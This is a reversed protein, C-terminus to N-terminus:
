TWELAITKYDRKSSDRERPFSTAPKATTGSQGNTLGFSCGHFLEQDNGGKAEAEADGRARLRPAQGARRGAADDPVHRSM